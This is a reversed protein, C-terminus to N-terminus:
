VEDSDLSLVLFCTYDSPDYQDHGLCDTQIYETSIQIDDMSAGPWKDQAIRDLDELSYEGRLYITNEDDDPTFTNITNNGRGPRTGYGM